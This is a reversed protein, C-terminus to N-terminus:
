NGGDTTKKRVFQREGETVIDWERQVTEWDARIPDTALYAVDDCTLGEVIQAYYCYATLLVEGCMGYKSCMYGAFIKAERPLERMPIKTLMFIGRDVAPNEAM